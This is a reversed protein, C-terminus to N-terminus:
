TYLNGQQTMKNYDFLRKEIERATLNYHNGIRRIIQLYKSWQELTFSMGRPNEQVLNMKYLEKWVRIDIVPYNIPDFFMLIASASPYNVGKLAALIHIKLKDNDVQFALQTVNKIYNEDNIEYHRLPRPSKWKLIKIAQPKNLFGKRRYIKTSELLKITKADEQSSTKSLILDLKDTM